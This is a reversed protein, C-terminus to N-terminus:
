SGACSAFSYVPNLTVSPDWALLCSGPHLKRQVQETQLQVIFNFRTYLCQIVGNVENLSPRTVTVVVLGDSIAVEM